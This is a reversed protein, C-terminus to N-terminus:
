CDFSSRINFPKNAGGGGGGKADIKSRFDIKVATQTVMAVM